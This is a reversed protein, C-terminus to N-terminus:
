KQRSPLCYRALRNFRKLKLRIITAGRQAAVLKEGVVSVIRVYLSGNLVLLWGSLYGCRM